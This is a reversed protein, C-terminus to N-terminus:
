ATTNCSSADYITPYFGSFDAFWAAQVENHSLGNWCGHKRESQRIVPFLYICCGSIYYKCFHLIVLVPYQAVKLWHQHIGWRVVYFIEDSVCSSPKYRYDATFHLKRVNQSKGCDVINTQRRIKHSGRYFAACYIYLLTQHKIGLGPCSVSPLMQTWIQDQPDSGCDGPQKERITSTWGLRDCHINVSYVLFTGRLYFSSTQGSESTLKLCVKNTINVQQRTLTVGEAQLVQLARRKSSRHGLLSGPNMGAELQQGRDTPCRQQQGSPLLQLHYKQHGQLHNFRPNERAKM